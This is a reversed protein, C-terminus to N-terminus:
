QSLEVRMVQKAQIIPLTMNVKLVSEFTELKHQIVGPIGDKLM